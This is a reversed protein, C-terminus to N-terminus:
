RSNWAERRQFRIAPSRDPSAVSKEQRSAEHFFKRKRKLSRWRGRTSGLPHPFTRDQLLPWLVTTPVHRSSSFFPLNEHPLANFVYSGVRLTSTADAAAMLVAIPPYENVYHDAVLLTAYGLDEARRALGIWEERSSVGGTVALGFRFSRADSM